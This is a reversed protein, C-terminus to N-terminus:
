DIPMDEEQARANANPKTYSDDSDSDDDDGNDLQSWFGAVKLTEYDRGSTPTVNRDSGSNSAVVLAAPSDEVMLNKSQSMPQQRGRPPSLPAFRSGKALPSLSPLEGDDLEEEEVHNLMNDDDDDYGEYYEDQMKQEKEISRVGRRGRGYKNGSSTNGRLGGFLKKSSVTTPSSMSEDKDPTVRRLSFSINKKKTSMTDPTLGANTKFGKPQARQLIEDDASM